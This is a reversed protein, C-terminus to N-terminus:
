SHFADVTCLLLLPGKALRLHVHGEVHCPHMVATRLLSMRGDVM